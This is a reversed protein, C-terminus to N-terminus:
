RRLPEQPRNSLSFLLLSSLHHSNLALSFCLSFSCYSVVGLASLSFSVFVCYTGAILSWSSVAAAKSLAFVTVKGSSINSVADQFAEGSLKNKYFEEAENRSLSINKLALITFGREKVIDAIQNAKEVAEPQVIALVRSIQFGAPFYKEIDENAQQLSSSAYVPSGTKGLSASISEPAFTKADAINSPGSVIIWDVIANPKELVYSQATGLDDEGFGLDTATEKNDIEIRSKAIVAFSNKKLYEEVAEPSTTPSVICVTRELAGETHSFHPPPPPPPFFRTLPTTISSLSHSHPLSLPQSLPVSLYLHISISSLSLPLPPLLFLSSSTSSPFLEKVDRHAAYTDRSFYTYEVEERIKEWAEFPSAHKMLLIVVPARNPLSISISVSLSFVCPTHPTLISLCLSCCVSKEHMSLFCFVKRM